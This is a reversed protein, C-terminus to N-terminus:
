LGGGGGGAGWKVNGIGHKYTQILFAENVWHSSWSAWRLGRHSHTSYLLQQISM